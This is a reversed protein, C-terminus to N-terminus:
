HLLFQLGWFVFKAEFKAVSNLALEEGLLQSLFNVNRSSHVFLNEGFSSLPQYLFNKLVTCM